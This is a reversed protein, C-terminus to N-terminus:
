VVLRARLAALHTPTVGSALLYDTVGGYRAGVHAFTNTIMEPPSNETLAVGYERVAALGEATLRGHGDTRILARDGIRGGNGTAIGGLDRANRPDPWRLHPM